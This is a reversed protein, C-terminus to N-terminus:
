PTKAAKAAPCTIDVVAANTANLVDNTPAKMKVSQALNLADPKTSDVTKLAVSCGPRSTGSFIVAKSDVPEIDIYYTPDFSSYRIKTAAPDIAKALPLSFSFTLQGKDFTASPKAPVGVDALKGGVEIFTFYRYEKLNKAYTNALDQLEAADLKKNKNRDLGDTAFQSYFEDFTWTVAIADVNGNADLNVASRMEIWVHPHAFAPGAAFVFALFPLAFRLM